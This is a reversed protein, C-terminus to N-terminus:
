AISQKSAGPVIRSFLLETPWPSLKGLITRLLIVSKAQERIITTVEAQLLLRTQFDLASFPEDLLIVDPNFALTRMLAVRQRMGGSLQSPRSNEFGELGYKKVLVMAIDRAERRGMGRVELGLIM